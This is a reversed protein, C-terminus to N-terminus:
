ALMNRLEFYIVNSYTREECMTVWDSSKRERKLRVQLWAYQIHSPWEDSTIKAVIAWLCVTTFSCCSFGASFLPFLDRLCVQQVFYWSIRSTWTLLGALLPRQHFRCLGAHSASCVKVCIRFWLFGTFDRPSSQKPPCFIHDSAHRM